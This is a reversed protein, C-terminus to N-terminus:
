QSVVSAEGPKTWCLVRKLDFDLMFMTRGATTLTQRKEVYETRTMSPVYTSSFLDYLLDWQRSRQYRVFDNVLRTVPVRDPDRLTVLSKDTEAIQASATTAIFSVLLFTLLLSRHRHM